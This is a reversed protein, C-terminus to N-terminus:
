RGTGSRMRMHAASGSLPPCATTPSLGAGRRRSIPQGGDAAAVQAGADRFGTVRAGSARTCGGDGSQTESDRVRRM